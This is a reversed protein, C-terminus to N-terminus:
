KNLSKMLSTVDKFRPLNGEIAENIANLTAENPVKATKIDASVQLGLKKALTGLIDIDSKRDSSIIITHM